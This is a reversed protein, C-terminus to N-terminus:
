RLKAQSVGAYSKHSERMKRFHEEREEPSMAQFRAEAEAIERDIRANRDETWQPVEKKQSLLNVKM